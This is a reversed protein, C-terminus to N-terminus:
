LSELFEKHVYIDDLGITRGWLIYDNEFMLKRIKEDGYISCCSPNNEITLVNIRVKDFDVGNLVNLEHGEVDLSLYDIKKINEKEMVDKFLKTQVQIEETEYGYDIDRTEQIFSLMDEWGTSDKVVTFMVEGESDSLAFPFLKAKRHEAWLKSMYPLPEFAVGKWGLEEFHLTNNIKLPHNGGIDCFFGDKKGKFFNKYVIYDQNDQSYLKKNNKDVSEFIKTNPYAKKFKKVIKNIRRKNFLTTLKNYSKPFLVNAGKKILKKM